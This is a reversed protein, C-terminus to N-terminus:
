NNVFLAKNNNIKLLLFFTDFLRLIDTLHLLM